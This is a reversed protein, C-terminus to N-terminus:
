GASKKSLPLGALYSITKPCPCRRQKNRKLLAHIDALTDVDRRAPLLHVRCGWKNLSKLTSRLVSKGGWNMTDFVEPVFTNNRFGILYYGGDHAPGVVADNTEFMRFAQSVISSPLDPIDSGILITREYKMSFAQIFSNKMREGLDCGEQPLYGYGAGLWERVKGPASQPYVCILCQAECTTLTALMDLIFNKYLELAITEDLEAALRSKVGGTVPHKVFFLICNKPRATM